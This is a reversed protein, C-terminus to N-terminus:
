RMLESDDDMRYYQVSDRAARGFLSGFIMSVGALILLSALMLQLIDPWIFIVIGAMIFLAGIIAPGYSFAAPMNGTTYVRM